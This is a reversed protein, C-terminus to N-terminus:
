IGRRKEEAEAVPKKPELLKELDKRIFCTTCLYGWETPDKTTLCGCGQCPNLETTKM